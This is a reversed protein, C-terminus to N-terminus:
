GPDGRHRPERAAQNTGSSAPAEEAELPVRGGRFSSML